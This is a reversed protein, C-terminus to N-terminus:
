CDEAKDIDDKVIQLLCNERVCGRFSELIEDIRTRLESIVDGDKKAGESVVDKPNSSALMALEKGFIAILEENEEMKSDIGDKTVGPVYVDSTVQVGWGM